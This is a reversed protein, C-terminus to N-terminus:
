LEIIDLRFIDPVAKAMAVACLKPVYMRTTIIATYKREGSLGM